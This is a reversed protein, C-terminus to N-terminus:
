LWNYFMELKIRQLAEHVYKAIRVVCNYHKGQLISETSDSGALGAEITFDRLGAASWMEKWHRCSNFGGM